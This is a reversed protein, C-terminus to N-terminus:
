RNVQKPTLKPGTEEVMSRGVESLNMFKQLRAVTEAIEGGSRTKESMLRNWDFGRQWLRLGVAGGREPVTGGRWEWDNRTVVVPVGAARFAAVSGSKGILNWPTTAFGLELREILAALLGASLAGAREIRLNAVEEGLDKLVGQAAVGNNGLVILVSERGETRGSKVWERLASVPRWEPHIAGFVGGLAIPNRDDLKRAVLWSQADVRDTETPAPLNSPLSLLEAKIGHRNLMAQYVPISTLVLKPQLARLLRLVGRRQWWGVLRNKWDDRRSEGIWLEHMYVVADRGDCRKIIEARVAAGILGRPQWAYPVFQLFVCEGALRAEEPPERGRRDEIVCKVGREAMESAVLRAFDGVGRAPRLDASLVAISPVIKKTM